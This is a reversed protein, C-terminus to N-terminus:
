FETGGIVQQRLPGTLSGGQPSVIAAYVEGSILPSISKVHGDVFSVNVGGAHLSSPWPAIGEPQDVSSNISELSSPLQSNDNARQYNVNGSRCSEGECITGSLFFANNSPHPSSWGSTVVPDFGARINEAMMVTTSTGDHVDGIRHHRQTGSGLPWNEVFFLGLSEMVKADENRGSLGCASGDGNLDIPLLTASDGDSRLVAPCDVPITWGIGANVVYSLNGEGVQVSVDDPCILTEIHSQGITQNHYSDHTQSFDYREWLPSQELQPLISTVWGHYADGQSTSFHGMAPFRRHLDANSLLAISLQRLRNQCAVNRAAGRAQQVAPLLLATLVSIIAVAILLELLSFGQRLRTVRRAPLRTRCRGNM